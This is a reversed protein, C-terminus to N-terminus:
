VYNGNCSLYPRAWASVITIQAKTQSKKLILDMDDSFQGLLQLGILSTIWGSRPNYLLRAQKPGQRAPGIPLDLDSKVYCALADFVTGVQVM